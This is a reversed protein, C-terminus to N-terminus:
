RAGRLRRRRRYGVPWLSGARAAVFSGWLSRAVGLVLLDDRRHARCPRDAHALWRMWAVAAGLLVGPLKRPLRGPLRQGAEAPARPVALARSAPQLTQLIATSGDCGDLWGAATGTARRYGGGTAEAPLRRRYGGGTAEGTAEASQSAAQARLVAAHRRLLACAHTTCLCAAAASTAEAPLRRRYGGGTAERYGRSTAEGTAEGTAEAAAVSGARAARRRPPAATLMCTCWM